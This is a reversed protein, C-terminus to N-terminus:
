KSALRVFEDEMRNVNDLRVIYVKGGAKTILNHIYSQRETVKGEATKFEVAVFKGAVVGVWDPIGHLGMGISVPMFGWIPINEKQLTQVILKFTRKVLGEPTM